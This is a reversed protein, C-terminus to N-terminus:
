NTKKISDYIKIGHMLNIAARLQNDNNIFEREKQKKEDKEKDEKKQKKKEMEDFINKEQEKTKESPVERKVIVDPTIGEENITRGSPTYYRATTLRLASGDRLAEHEGVIDYMQKGRGYRRVHAVEKARNGTDDGM